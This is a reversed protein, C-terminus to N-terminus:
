MQINLKQMKMNACLPYSKLINNNYKQFIILIYKCKFLFLVLIYGYNELPKYKM